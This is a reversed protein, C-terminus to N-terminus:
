WRRGVLRYRRWLADVCWAVALVLHLTPMVVYTAMVRDVRPSGCAADAATRCVAAIAVGWTLMSISPGVQEDWHQAIALLAVMAAVAQYRDAYGPRRGICESVLWLVLAYAMALTSGSM